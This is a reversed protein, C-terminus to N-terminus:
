RAVERLEAWLARYEDLHVPASGFAHAYAVRDGIRTDFTPWGVAALTDAAERSLRRRADWRTLLVGVPLATGKGAEVEALVELSPKLRDVDMGSPLCPVVVVSAVSAVRALADRDNPACDVVVVAGGEALARADRALRDRDGARVEFGLDGGAHAAWRRASGEPDADVVVVRAGEGAAVAALHLATTTKGAGGKLSGIVVIVLEVEVASRGMGSARVPSPIM